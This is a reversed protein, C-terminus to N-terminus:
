QQAKLTRRLREMQEKFEVEREMMKKEEARRHLRIKEGCRWLSERSSSAYEEQLLRLREKERAMKAMLENKQTEAAALVNKMDGEGTEQGEAQDEMRRQVEHVKEQNRDLELKKKRLEEEKERQKGDLEEQLRRLEEMYSQIEGADREKEKKKQTLAEELKRLAEKYAQVEEDKRKMEERQRALEAQLKQNEKRRREVERWMLLLRSEYKQVEELRLHLDARTKECEDENTKLRERLSLIEGTEAEIAWRRMEMEEEKEKVLGEKKWIEKGLQERQEELGKLDNMREEFMRVEQEFAEQKRQIRKEKETLREKENELNWKDKELERFMEERERRTKVEKVEIAKTSNELEQWRQQLKLKEKAIAEKEAQLSERERETKEQDRKFSEILQLVKAMNEDLHAIQDRCREADKVLRELMEEDQLVADRLTRTNEEKSQILDCERKLEEERRELTAQQAELDKKLGSIWVDEQVHSLEPQASEGAYFQGGGNRVMEDVRKLLRSVQMHDQLEVLHYRDGCCKLLQQMQEGELHFSTGGEGSAQGMCSVVVLCHQLVAEGFVESTMQLVELDKASVCDPRVVFLVAHPGPALFQECSSKINKMLELDKKAIHQFGPTDLVTVCRGSVTGSHISCERTTGAVFAEEGLIAKVTSTKGAGTMGLLVM